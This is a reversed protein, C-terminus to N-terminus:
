RNGGWPEIRVSTPDFGRGRRGIPLITVTVLEDIIARRLGLPYADWAARVSLGKSQAEALLALSPSVGTHTDLLARADAIQKDLKRKGYRLMDDDIDEALRKDILGRKQQEWVKIQARLGGQDVGSDAPAALLKVIDPRSLRNVIKDIVLADVAALNRVVHGKGKVECRYALAKTTSVLVSATAGCVCRYLGTGLYCPARGVNSGRRVERQKGTVPDVWRVISTSDTLEAVVARWVDDPLIPEGPLKGILENDAYLKPLKDAPDTANRSRERAAESRYPVHGAVSPRILIDRVTTGDWPKGTVTPVGRSNLDRAIQKSPVGALVEDAWRRIEEAESPVVANYDLIPEGDADIMPQGTKALKPMGTGYRRRGGGFRGDEAQREREEAVRLGKVRSETNANAISNRASQIEAITGGATLKLTGDPSDAHCGKAEAIDILDELDRPQRMLRDAHEILVANVRGFWLHDLVERFGPRFTRLEVRGDRLTIRKRKFASASRKGNPTRDNEIVIDVVRWRLRTAYKSLKTARQPFTSNERRNDSLRLYLICDAIWGGPPEAQDGIMERVIDTPPLANTM